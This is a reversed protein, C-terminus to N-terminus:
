VMNIFPARRQFAVEPDMDFVKGNPKPIPFPM